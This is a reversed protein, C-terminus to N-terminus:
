KLKYGVLCTNMPPTYGLYDPSRTGPFNKALEVLEYANILGFGFDYNVWFGAGNKTWGPNDSLPAVESTWAIAHKM